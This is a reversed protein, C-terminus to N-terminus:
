YHLTPLFPDKAFRLAGDIFEVLTSEEAHLKYLATKVFMTITIPIRKHLPTKKYPSSKKLRIWFKPITIMM